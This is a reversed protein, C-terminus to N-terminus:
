SGRSEFQVETFREPPGDLLPAPQGRLERDFFALSYANVIEHAREVGIPGALGPWPVFPALLGADTMDLHFMNRAQVFFGDGPLQRYAAWMTDLTERIDTEPWGGATRRELRMSDEDRTFFMIPQRLGARLVDAPVFAEELLGARLRPELHCAEAGVVAGFSHGIIGVRELDLRGHLLHNSEAIAALQDLTFSVDHALYPINADMFASHPPDWRDDYAVERGDPFVVMAVSTPQDLAAVVYGRSVLEEVQFTHLQRYSGKIGVLLVIVPYARGDDALPARAVANTTFDRLPALTVAPVGLFRALVPGVADADPMYAARPANPEHTAPYWLQVMLERH